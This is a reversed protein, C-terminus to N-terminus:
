IVRGDGNSSLVKYYYVQGVVASIDNYTLGAQPDSLASYMGGLTLGRYVIYTDAGNAADWSINVHTTITGDTAIINEPVLPGFGEVDRQTNIDDINVATDYLKLEDIVADTDGNSRKIAFSKVGFTWAADAFFTSPNIPDGNKYVKLRNEIAADKDYEFSLFMLENASFTLDFYYRAKHAGGNYFYWDLKKTTGNWWVQCQEGGGTNIWLLTHNSASTDDYTPEFWCSFAGSNLSTFAAPFTVFNVADCNSVGDDFKGPAYEVTGSRVGNIGIEVTDIEANSGLKCYQYCDDKYYSM